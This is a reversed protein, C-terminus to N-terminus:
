GPRRASRLWESAPSDPMSRRGRWQTLGLTPSGAPRRRLREGPSPGRRENTNKRIRPSCRRQGNRVLSALRSVTRRGANSATAVSPTPSRHGATSVSRGLWSRKGAPRPLPEASRAKRRPASSVTATRRRVASTLTTPRRIPRESADALSHVVKETWPAVAEAWSPMTTSLAHTLPPLIRCHGDEREIFDARRFIHGAALDIAYSEIELRVVDLLDLALSDRGPTDAHLFGMGPDLGVSLCALRCEAEALAYLYNLVAPPAPVCATLAFPWPEPVFALVTNRSVVHDARSVVVPGLHARV